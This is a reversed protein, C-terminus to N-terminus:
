AIFKNWKNKILELVLMANQVVYVYVLSFMFENASLLALIVLIVMQVSNICYIRKRYVYRENVNIKKAATEVPAIYLISLLCVVFLGTLMGITMNQLIFRKGFIQLLLIINSIITCKWMKNAHWGGCFSRLPIYMFLFFLIIKLEKFIIEIAIAIIINLIVECLLIYGYRYIKEDEATLTKDNMQKNIMVDVIKQIM